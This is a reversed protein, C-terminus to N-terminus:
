RTVTTRLFANTWCCQAHGAGAVAGDNARLRLVYEGPASFMATTTSKGDEGIDPTADGFQVSGPGRHKIWTVTLRPPSAEDTVWADLALPEGVKATRPGATIGGPGRAEAGAADFRLVPPTNNSGAEGELADIQWLPDLSGPIAVTDGRAILTWVIKRDGFNAPVNVAFAGWHRRAQFHTPQGLDPGGPEMRNNPGIPIDLTEQRNRNYYGFSLSYTGDPNRYWGEFAPTITLGSDRAAPEPQQARLPAGIALLSLALGAVPFRSWRM